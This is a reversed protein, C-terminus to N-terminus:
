RRRRRSFRLNRGHLIRATVVGMPVDIEAPIRGMSKLTRQPAHRGRATIISGYPPRHRSYVVDPKTGTTRFPPFVSVYYLGQKWTALAPGERRRQQKPQSVTARPVPKPKPRPKPYPYPYPSPKPSPTPVPSLTPSPTPSPKGSPISKPAKSPKSSPSPKVSPSLSPVSSPSFKPSPSPVKSVAPSPSQKPSVNASALSRSVSPSVKALSRMTSPAKSVMTSLALSTATQFRPSQALKYPYIPSSIQRELKPSVSAGLSNPIHVVVSPSAGTPVRSSSAPIFQYGIIDSPTNAAVDLMAQRIRPLVKALQPKTYGMAKAWAELWEEAIAEGKFTRLTVYFDAADKPVGPQAIGREPPQFATGEGTQRVRLITDAKRVGSESLRMIRLEGVGPYKVTIAPESVMRGYSYTGTADLKSVPIDSVVEEMSHIDAIHNGEFTGNIKKEIVTPKEPNIRYTGGGKVKLDKLLTQTWAETQAQNMNLSIDWDHIPRWSRLEPALQAKITPSGYLLSADKLESANLKGMREMVTSIENANLRQTPEILVDKDLWPSMKGAFLNRDKLTKTLYEIQPQTWGAKELAARNVFVKTELMTEPKYGNLIMRAEPLTIGRTGVIWKGASRGIIPQGAVSLGKWAVAKGETTPIGLGSIKVNRAVTTILPVACLVAMGVGMARQEPTLGAWSKATGYGIMGSLATSAGVTIVKGVVSGAIAGPAFGLVILPAQAAAIGWDLATVDARTYEPLVPKAPPIFSVLAMLGARKYSSESLHYFGKDSFSLKSMEEQTITQPLTEWRDLRQRQKAQGFYVAPRPQKEYFITTAKTLAAFGQQKLIQQSGSPLKNFQEKTIYEDGPVPIIDGREIKKQFEEYPENAKDIAAVMANYGQTKGINAFNTGNTSDSAVLSQWDTKPIWQGDGLKVNENEFAQQMAAFGKTAAIDAYHTPLAYFDSKFIFQGDACEYYDFKFERMAADYGETTVLKRYKSPWADWGSQSFEIIDGTKGDKVKVKGEVKPKVEKPQPQGIQRSIRLVEYGASQAKQRASKESVAQVTINIWKHDKDWTGIKWIDATQVDAPCAARANATALQNLETQTMPITIRIGASEPIQIKEAETEGVTPTIGKFTTPARYTTAPKVGIPSTPSPVVYGAAKLAEIDYGPGSLQGSKEALYIQTEVDLLPLKREFYAGSPLKVLAM